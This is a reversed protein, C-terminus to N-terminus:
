KEVNFIDEDPNFKKQPCIIAINEKIPNHIQIFKGKQRLAYNGIVPRHGAIWVVDRYNKKYILKITKSVSTQNACDNRTWTLGLCVDYNDRFDIIQNADLPIEPEAHSLIVDPFVACLPLSHEFSSILYILADDYKKQLFSYVMDGEAAFKYFPHNGNGEENLINEHNGKLIHFNQPCNLKLQICMMLLNLNEQMEECLEDNLFDNSEIIKAFATKWRECGRIESHFLDGLSVLYIKNQLLAELVSITQNEIELNFDLIDLFFKGRAHLDPIVVVPLNEKKRFDLLGGSFNNKCNERPRFSEDENQLIDLVKDLNEMLFSSSFLTKTDFLQQLSSRLNM